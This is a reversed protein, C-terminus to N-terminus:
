NQDYEGNVNAFVIINKVGRALLPMLGFNDTFGGDGHPVPGSASVGGFKEGFRHRIGPYLPTYAGSMLLPYSYVERTSAVTGSVILFPRRSSDTTLFQIHSFQGPNDHIVGDIAESDWAFLRRSAQKGIPDIIPDVFVDGIFRSYTKE